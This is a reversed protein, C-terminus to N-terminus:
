GMKRIEEDIVPYEEAGVSAKAQKQNRDINQYKQRRDTFVQYRRQNQKYRM